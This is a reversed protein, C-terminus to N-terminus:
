LCDGLGQKISHPKKKDEGGTLDGSLMEIESDNIYAHVSLPM